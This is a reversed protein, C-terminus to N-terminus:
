PSLLKSKVLHKKVTRSTITRKKSYNLFSFGDIDKAIKMLMEPSYDRGNHPYKKIIGLALKAQDHKIRLYPYLAGLVEEVAKFGVINYECIDDNRDRIYGYKLKEKLWLLFWRYKKNQYFIVSAKVQFGLRYDSKRILQFLICGDGDLFGAIYAKEKNLMM